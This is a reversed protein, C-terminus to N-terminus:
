DLPLRLVGKKRKKKKKKVIRSPKQFIQIARIAFDRTM